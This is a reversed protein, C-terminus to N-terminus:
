HISFTVVVTFYVKVPRDGLMAPQYKWQMVAGLAADDLMKHAGRQVTADEVEGTKGIVARIIVTGEIRAKILIVPYIPEVRKIQVPKKMEPTIFRIEDGANGATDDRLITDSSSTGSDGDMGYPVGNPIGNPVGGPGGDASGTDSGQDSGSIIEAPPLADPIVPPQVFEQPREPQPKSPEPPKPRSIPEPPGIPVPISDVVIVMPLPPPPIAEVIFWYSTVILLAVILTHLGLSVPFALWKKLSRHTRRSEILNEYFM